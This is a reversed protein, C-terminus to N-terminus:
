SELATLIPEVSNAWQYKEKVFKRGRLSLQNRLDADILVSEIDAVFHRPIDSILIEEGPIAGISENVFPTTICPIGQAMAELIKNQQGSGTFIPAVLIRGRQYHERVDEVWGVVRINTRQKINIWKPPRAGAILLTTRSSMISMIEDILYHAAISNHIYGLNGCFVMDFIPEIHPLPEFYETDVGNPSIIMRDKVHSDFQDRDRSSIIFHHDFSDFISLEYAEVRRREIANIFPVYKFEPLGTEKWNLAFSDMFDISKPRHYHDVYPAMRILQVLVHDPSIEDLMMRIHRQVSEDYFYSVQLPLKSLSKKLVNAWRQPASIVQIDISTCYQSLVKKDESSVETDSLSILHVDHHKSLEVIQYYARVKDGRDLPHPFRSTLYVIKM